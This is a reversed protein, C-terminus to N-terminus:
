DSAVIITFRKREFPIGNIQLALAHEGPYYKRTTVPRFSHRRTISLSEGPALTAKTLKFVKPTLQGNARLHYVVYDILLSQPADGISDIEFSFTLYDGIVVTEQEVTFRKLAVAASHDYGLLNLAEADGKKILTRLAQRIIWKMEVTDHVRWRRVVDLVVHANDKSIDNLNNAVSRRVFDSEDLKLKELIPVIPSPDAKFAPLAIAWPLRPRCGESALRRVHHSSHGAWTLM